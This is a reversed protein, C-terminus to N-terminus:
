RRGPPPDFETEKFLVRRATLATEFAASWSTGDWIGVHIPNEHPLDCFVFRGDSGTYAEAWADRVLGSQAERWTARVRIGDISTGDGRVLRGVLLTATPRDAERCLSLRTDRFGPAAVQVSITDDATVDVYRVPSPVGLEALDRHLFTIRHRGAPVKPLVFRGGADTLSSVATGTILVRAQALGGGSFGNAVLGVVTGAGAGRDIWQGGTSVGDVLGGADVYGVVEHVDRVGSVLRERRVGVRPMRVWWESAIWTGNPLYEFRVRGGSEDGPLDAPLNAYSYEFERLEATTTDLWMTGM